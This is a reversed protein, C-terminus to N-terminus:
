VCSSALLIRFNRAQLPDGLVEKILDRLDRGQPRNAVLSLVSHPYETFEDRGLNLEAENWDKILASVDRRNTLM